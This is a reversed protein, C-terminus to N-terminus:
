LVLFSGKYSATKEVRLYGVKRDDLKNLVPLSSSRFLGTGYYSDDLMLITGAIYETYTKEEWINEVARQRVFPQLIMERVAGEAFLKEWEEDSTLIGAYVKESKGLCRHKVIYSDKNKRADEWRAEDQGYLWTRIVHERLYAAEAGTFIRETVEDLWILSLVRKDHTLFVSRLDNRHEAALIKKVTEDSLSLLDTQNLASFILTGDLTGAEAEKEIDEAPIIRVEKGLAKYFPVYLRISDSRDKSSLVCIRNYSEAYSAFVSLMEEMREDESELGAKKGLERGRKDAFFSLFYGNGFFRSTIECIGIRGEESIIYDIRATGPRYRGGEKEMALLRLVHGDYPILPLFEEYHEAYFHLFRNLLETTRKLEADREPLILMPRDFYWRFYYDTLEAHIRDFLESYYGM